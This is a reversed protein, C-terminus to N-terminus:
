DTDNCGERLFELINDSKLSWLPTSSETGEVVAFTGFNDKYLRVVVANVRRKKLERIKVKQLGTVGRDGVKLEIWGTWKHHAVYLDPWGSVQMGHGHVNLVMAGRNKLMKVIKKQFETEKM